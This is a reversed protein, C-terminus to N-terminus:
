VEVNVKPGIIGRESESQQDLTSRIAKFVFLRNAVVLECNPRDLDIYITDVYRSLIM